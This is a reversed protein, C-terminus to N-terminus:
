LWQRVVTGDVKKGVRRGQGDVLYEVLKGSMEVRVLNGLADYTYTTTQGSVSRRRAHRVSPRIRRRPSRNRFRLSGHCQPDTERSGSALEPRCNASAGADDMTCPAM